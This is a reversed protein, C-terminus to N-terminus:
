ELGNEKKITDIAHQKFNTSLRYMKGIEVLEKEKKTNTFKEDITALLSEVRSSLVATDEPKKLLEFLNQRLTGIYVVTPMETVEIAYRVDFDVRLKPVRIDTVSTYVTYGGGDEDKVVNQLYNNANSDPNGFGKKESSDLFADADIREMYEIVKGTLRVIDPPTEGLIREGESINNKIYTLFLRISKNAENAEPRAATTFNRMQVDPVKRLSLNSNETELNDWYYPNGLLSQFAAYGLHGEFTQNALTFKFNNQENSMPLLAINKWKPIPVGRFPLFELRGLQRGNIAGLQNQKIEDLGAENVAIKHVQGDLYVFVVKNTPKLSGGDLNYQKEILDVVKREREKAGIKDDISEAKVKEFIIKNIQSYNKM